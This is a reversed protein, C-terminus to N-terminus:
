NQSGDLDIKLLRLREAKSTGSLLQVRLAKDDGDERLRFLAFGDHDLLPKEVRMTVGRLNTQELPTLELRDCYAVAARKNEFAPVKWLVFNDNKVILPPLLQEEGGFAVVEVQEWRGREWQVREYDCKVETLRRGAWQDSMDLVPEWIFSEERKSELFRTLAHKRWVVVQGLKNQEAWEM